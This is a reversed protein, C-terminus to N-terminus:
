SVVFLFFVLVGEDSGSSLKQNLDLSVKQWSPSFGGFWAQEQEGVM